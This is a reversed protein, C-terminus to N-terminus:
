FSLNVGVTFNRTLPLANETTKPQVEDRAGRERVEPDLDLYDTWMGLNRGAVTLRGTSAGIQSLLVDPLMYSVRLERFRIYNADDTFIAGHEGLRQNREMMAQAEPTLATSRNWWLWCASSNPGTGDTDPCMGERNGADLQQDSRRAFLTHIRFADGLQITSSLTQEAPAASSGVARRGTGDDLQGPAYEVSGDIIEGQANREADTILRSLYTEPSFGRQVGPPPNEVGVETITADSDFASLRLDWSVDERDLVRIDASAEFGSSTLEGVNVWQNNSFGSSPAVPISLIAGETTQDYYTFDVGLRGGFLDANMGVEIEESREAGLDPNGPDNPVLGAQAGSETTLRRIVFTRDASYQEPSQSAKGWAGRLRLQSVWDVNWGEMDSVVWSVNASPSWIEDERDGLSSNDDVRMAGTVYLYERWGIRQQVYAGIEVKQRRSSFGRINVAANCSTAQDNPYVRGQCRVQDVEDEFYQAGFTTRTSIDEAPEFSLRSSLDLSRNVNTTSTIFNEGGAAFGFPIDPDFPIADQFESHSADAGIRAMNEMWPFPRYNLRLSTTFRQVNEINPIAAIKDFAARVNGNSDCFSDPQNFLLTGLCRDNNQDLSQVPFGGAWNGFFGSTNGGSKPTRTWNDFFGASLRVDLQDTIVSAFNARINKHDIRNSPMVGDGNEFGLAGYYTTGENGGRVSLMYKQRYGTGKPDVNDDEFPNHRVFVRGDEAYSGWGELRPDDPGSVHPTVNAINPWYDAVDRMMTGEASVNIQAGGERGTKTEVIIVGSAAESGYLTTASPGKVIQINEINDPNLDNFRSYTQGRAVGTETRNSARVGDIILLPNNAQTLSNVGRVRVQQGVGLNGSGLQMSVGEGRGAILESFNSIAADQVAEAANISAIDTGVERRTVDGAGVSAVVESLEVASTQLVFDVNSSQGATVQVTKTSQRYGIRGARVRVEGAPVGRLDFNGNQGTLTGIGTGVVQITVSELPQGQSDTVQGTVRGDQALLPSSVFLVFLLGVGVSALKRM